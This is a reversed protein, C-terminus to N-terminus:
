REIQGIYKHNCDNWPISYIADTRQEKTVPDKPKAFIYGLTQCPTQAVKVNHSNLSSPNRLVRFTPFLLFIVRQKGRMLLAVLQLQSKITVYFTKYYGNAKRVNSVYKREGAMSDLSSPLYDARRPFNKNLSKEFYPSPPPLYPPSLRFPRM